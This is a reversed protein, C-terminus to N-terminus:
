TRRTCTPRRTGHSASDMAHQPRHLRPELRRRLSVMSHLFQCATSHTQGLARMAADRSVGMDLLQSLTNNYITGSVGVLITIQQIHEPKHGAEILLERLRQHQANARQEQHETNTDRCVKLEIITVKRESAHLEPCGAGYAPNSGPGAHAPAVLLGDPRLLARETDTLRAPLLHPPIRCAHRAGDATILGATIAKGAAGVDHMCLHAGRSGKAVAKLLIRGIANHREAVMAQPQAHSCGSVIHMGGDEGGCLPCASSDTWKWMKLTKRSVLTGSRFQLVARRQAHTVNRDSLYANSAKGMAQPLIRRWSAAYMSRAPDAYGLGQRRAVHAVLATRLNNIYQLKGGEEEPLRQMPWFIEDLCHAKVDCTVYTVVCQQGDHAQLTPPAVGPGTGGHEEAHALIRATEGAILDAMENGIIGSHSKVKIFEVPGAAERILKVIAHLLPAHKGHRAQMPQLLAKRILWM